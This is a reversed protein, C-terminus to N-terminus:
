IHILSLQGADAIAQAVAACGPCCMAHEVGDICASWREGPSRPLPLGCHFCDAVATAAAAASETTASQINTM